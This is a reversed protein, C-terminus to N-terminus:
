VPHEFIFLFKMVSTTFSCLFIIKNEPGDSEKTCNAINGALPGNWHNENGALYEMMTVQINWAKRQRKYLWSVQESHRWLLLIIKYINIQTNLPIQTFYCKNYSFIQIKFQNNTYQGFLSTKLQMCSKITLSETQRSQFMISPNLTMFFCNGLNRLASPENAKWCNRGFSRSDVPHSGELCLHPKCFSIACM